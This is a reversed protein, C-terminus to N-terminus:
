DTANFGRNMDIGLFDISLKDFLVQAFTALFLEM